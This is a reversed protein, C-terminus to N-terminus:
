FQIQGIIVSNQLLSNTNLQNLKTNEFTYNTDTFLLDGLVEAYFFKLDVEDAISTFDTQVQRYISQHAWYASNIDRKLVMSLITFLFILSVMFLNICTKDLM